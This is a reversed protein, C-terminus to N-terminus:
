EVLREIMSGIGIIDRASALVAIGRHVHMRFENAIAHADAVDLGDECCRLAFIGALTEAEDGAFVRWTMEVSSDTKIEQPIPRSSDKLSLCFAWRCLVNWNKIGTARKLKTLQDKAQESLRIHELPPKM